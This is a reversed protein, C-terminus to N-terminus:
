QSTNNLSLVRSIGYPHTSQPSTSHFVLFIFAAPQRQGFSFGRRPPHRPKWDPRGVHPSSPRRRFMFYSPDQETGYEQHSSRGEIVKPARGVALAESIEYPLPYAATADRYEVISRAEDAYVSLDADVGSLDEVAGLRVIQRDLLRGCKLQHDVQLGGLCECQCDRLRDKGAGVLHDLLRSPHESARV